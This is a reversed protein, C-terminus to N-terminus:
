VSFKIEGEPITGDRNDLQQTMSGGLVELERHAEDAALLKQQL